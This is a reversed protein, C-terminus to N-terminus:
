IKTEKKKFKQAVLFIERSRTLSAKPNFTKAFSFMRKTRDLLEKYEAGEFVKAVFSGGPKLLKEAMDLALHVLLASNETDAHHVGTTDPAMDSLLVDIKGQAKQNIEDRNAQDRIDGEIIYVGEIPVIPLLDIAIVKGKNKLSNVVYQSWSGPAAGLDLVAMGPKFLKYKNDIEELKYVARSRYNERRSKKLFHDNLRNQFWAKKAM